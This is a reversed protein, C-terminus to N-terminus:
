RIWSCRIWPGLIEDHLRKAAASIQEGMERDVREKAKAAIKERVEADAAPMKQDHQSRAMNRAVQGFIPVGDFDLRSAGCNRTTTSPFKRRGWTRIGRLSIELPKRAVYTSESDSYFTAPGANSRTLSAVEGNVELAMRVRHPDPIMRVTLESAM